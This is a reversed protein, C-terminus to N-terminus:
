TWAAFAIGDPGGLGLADSSVPGARRRLLVLVALLTLGAAVALALLRLRAGPSDGTVAAPPATTLLLYGPGPIRSTLERADPTHATELRTWARGDRAYAVALEGLATSAALSSRFGAEVQGAFREVPQGSPQYTARLRYVKGVAQLGEPTPGLSAPDLPTAELHVGTQGPRPQVAGQRLVVFFQDDRTSFGGLDSRPPRGRFRVEFSDTAPQTTALAGALCAALVASSALRHM